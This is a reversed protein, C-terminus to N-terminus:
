VTRIYNITLTGAEAIQNFELITDVSPVLNEIYAVGAVDQILAALVSYRISEGIDLNDISIYNQIATIINSIVVSPDYGTLVYVDCAIDITRYFIDRAEFLNGVTMRNAVYAELATKFVSSMAGGGNPVIYAIVTRFPPLSNDTIPSYDNIDYCMAKLVGPYGSILAQYDALTVMRWLSALELPAQTKAHDITEAEAGGTAAETNDVTVDIPNSMSDYLQDLLEDIVGTGVNGSAGDSIIYSLVISAGNPPILGYTGDGFEVQYTEDSRFKIIFHKSTGDSDLFNDVKTWDTSDVSAYICGTAVNSSGIVFYQDATGDSTFSQSSKIGQVVPVDVYTYGAPLSTAASTVFYVGAGSLRTFKPIVINNSIATNISFRVNCTSSVRSDLQYAIQKCINIVDRKIRATSLFNENTNNDLYFMLQDGMFCFLELLTIGIDSESWDTWNPTYTPIRSILENRLTSFDKVVYSFRTETAM